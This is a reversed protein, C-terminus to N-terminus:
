RWTSSRCATGLQGRRRNGEPRHSQLGPEDAGLGGHNAAEPAHATFGHGRDRGLQIPGTERICIFKDSEMTVNTFSIFQPNIGLNPLQTCLLLRKLGPWCGCTMFHSAARSRAGLRVPRPKEYLLTDIALLQLGEQLGVPSLKVAGAALWPRPGRM